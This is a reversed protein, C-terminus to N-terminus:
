SLVCCTSPQLPEGGILQNLRDPVRTREALLTERLSVLAQNSALPAFKSNLFIVIRELIQAKTIMGPIQILAYIDMYSLNEGFRLENIGMQDEDEFFNMPLRYLIMEYVGNAIPLPSMRITSILSRLDNPSIDNYSEPHANLCNIVGAWDSRGLLDNINPKFVKNGLMQVKDFSVELHVGQTMLPPLKVLGNPVNNPQKIRAELTNGTVRNFDDFERDLLAHMGRETRLEETFLKVVSKGQWYPKFGPFFLPAVYKNFNEADVTSNFYFDAGGSFMGNGEEYVEKRVHGVPMLFVDSEEKLQRIFEMVNRATRLQFDIMANAGNRDCFLRVVHRNQLVHLYSARGINIINPGMEVASGRVSFQSGFASVM